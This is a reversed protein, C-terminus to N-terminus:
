SVRGRGRGPTAAAAEAGPGELVRVPQGPKLSRQGKVVVREGVAVGDLVEAHDDDTFGVAVVRRDAVLGTEGEGAAVVYLVSEGKETVVALRPVLVAEPRRETVIRVEAFDGPRTGAPYDAVEVTVKITGSTPDIVPSILTIMGKLRTGASDLVLEVEQDLTLQRFERSPVHVRALLPTVDALSFLPQGASINQGLDVLRATVVGAFPAAVQLYEVDLRALGEAAVADDFSARAAELEEASALDEAQMQELRRYAAGLQAAKAAAQDLRYQLAPNEISLLRAGAAVADGEEARLVGVIGEVRSTVEVSKEAELSATAGYYSAIPGTTVEAVAVAAAPAGPRGGPRPDPPPSSSEAQRGCGLPAFLALILLAPLLRGSASRSVPM